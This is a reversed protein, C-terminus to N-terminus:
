SVLYNPQCGVASDNHLYYPTYRTDPLPWDEEDRWVNTGMVFLRVPKDSEDSNEVGKLWHDFWRIQTGTLDIAHQGAVSAYDRDPYFAWFNGHSWPGIVLRTHRRALESGGRKRMATYNKLDNNVFYDYWGALILAPVTIHEVADQPGYSQWYADHGPHTVWDAYYPVRGAFLPIDNAPLHSYISKLDDEAQRVVELEAVTAEGRAVQREFEGPLGQTATWGASVSLLFAGGQYPHWHIFSQAPAIAALLPPNGAAAQWQTLGQYSVGYMGVKGTSWPQRAVWEITDVGDNWENDFPTFEGESAFRGRTDQAVIVYGAKVVRLADLNLELFIRRIPDNGFPMDKGYPIRTVLVPWPGAGAPHYIDAILNVGDRMPIVVNREVVIDTDTATPEIAIM